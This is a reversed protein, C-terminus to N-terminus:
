ENKWKKSEKIRTLVDLDSDNNLIIQYNEYWKWKKKDKILNNFHVDLLKDCIKCRVIIIKDNTTVKPVHKCVIETM